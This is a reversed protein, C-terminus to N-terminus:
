EENYGGEESGVRRIEKQRIQGWIEEFVCYNRDMVPSLFFMAGYRGRVITDIVGHDNLVKLHHRVTKYNLGTSESIQHANLPREHLLLIIRARNDGGRSGAILWWLLRKMSM